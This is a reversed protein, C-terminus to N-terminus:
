ELIIKKKDKLIKVMDERVAQLYEEMETENSIVHFKGARGPKYKATPDEVKKGPETVKKPESAQIIKAIEGSRFHDANSIALKLSAISKQKKLNEITFNRDATVAGPVKYKDVAEKLADFVEVYVKEVEARNQKM